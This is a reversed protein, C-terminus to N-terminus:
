VILLAMDAVVAFSDINSLSDIAIKIRILNVTVALDVSSIKSLSDITRISWLLLMTLLLLKARLDGDDGRMVVLLMVMLLLM